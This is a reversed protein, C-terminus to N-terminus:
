SQTLPLTLHHKKWQDHIQACLSEKILQDTQGKNLPFLRSLMRNKLETASKHSWTVGEWPAPGYHQGHPIPCQSVRRDQLNGSVVLGWESVLVWSSIPLPTIVQRDSEQQCHPSPPLVQRLPQGMYDGFAGSRVPRLAWTYASTLIEQSLAPIQNMPDTSIRIQLSCKNYLAWIPM